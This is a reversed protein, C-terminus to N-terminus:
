MESEKRREITRFETPSLGTHKKFIKSFYLADEYGLSKAINLISMNSFYLLKKSESIRQLERWQVLSVGLFQKFLHSLRSSSLFVKEAIMEVSDNASLNSLITDCVALIRQDITPIIAIKEASICKMLLYELLTTAVDEKFFYGSKLEMDVKSFLQSIEQFYRHNNIKIQGIDAEKDSWNLWKNLKPNPMFYIWKYHWSQCDLHRYYYQITGPYFLLLQGRQTTFTKNGDFVAGQGFTTLQLMYGSMGQPKDVAFDLYNGKECQTIGAILELDFPNSPSLLSLNKYM